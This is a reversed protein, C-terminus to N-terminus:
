DLILVSQSTCGCNPPIGPLDSADPAELVARGEYTTGVRDPNDTYLKGDRAKHDDRAHVKGSHRWIWSDIGAQRRREENLQSSLVVNQHAAIRLARKRAMGVGEAIEKAMESAPTRAQLGRYVTDAIRQRADDSVARVLGVNRAIVADLTERADEPGIIASLDLGTAAQVTAQWRRRHWAEALRGWADLKPRITVIVASAAALAREIQADISSASDATLVPARDGSTPATERLTREYEEMIAVQAGTWIDVIPAYAARYLNTAQM